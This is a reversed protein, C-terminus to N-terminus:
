LSKRAIKRVLMKKTSKLYFFTALNHAILNEHYSMITFKGHVFFFSFISWNKCIGHRIFINSQKNTLKRLTLQSSNHVRGQKTNNKTQM